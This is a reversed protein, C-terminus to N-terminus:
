AVTRGPALITLVLLRARGTNRLGHAVGIPAPMMMGPEIEVTADDLLFQGQGELVYYIKDRDGHTHLAHEQGPEFANLGVMVNRTEFLTSKGMKEPRYEAYQPPWLAAAKASTDGTERIRPPMPPPGWCVRKVTSSGLDYGNRWVKSLDRGYCGLSISAEASTNCAQHVSGPPFAIAEGEKVDYEGVQRLQASGPRSGDDAREWCIMRSTGQYASYVAWTDGHDHISTREAPAMVSAVLTFDLTPHRYLLRPTFDGQLPFGIERELFGRDRVLEGMAGKIHTLAATTTSASQLAQEISRVCTRLVEVDQTKLM